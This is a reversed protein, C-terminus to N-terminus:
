GRGLGCLRSGTKARLSPSRLLILAQRLEYLVHTSILMHVHVHAYLRSHRLTLRGYTLRDSAVIRGRAVVVYCSTDQSLRTYRVPVVPPINRSCTSTRSRQGAGQCPPWATCLVTGLPRHVEEREGKGWGVGGGGNDQREGQM